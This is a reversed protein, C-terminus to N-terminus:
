IMEETSKEYLHFTIAQVDYPHINDIMRNMSCLNGQEDPGLCTKVEIDKGGRVHLEVIISIAELYKLLTPQFGGKPNNPLSYVRFRLWWRRAVGTDGFWEATIMYGAFAMTQKVQLGKAKKKRRRPRLKICFLKYSEVGTM